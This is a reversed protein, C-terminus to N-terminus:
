SFHKNDMGVNKLIDEIQTSSFYNRMATHNKYRWWFRKFYTLSYKQPMLAAATSAIIIWEGATWILMNGYKVPENESGTSAGWTNLSRRRETEQRILWISSFICRRMGRIECVSVCRRSSSLYVPQTRWYPMICSGARRSSIGRSHCM